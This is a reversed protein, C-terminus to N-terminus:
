LESEIYIFNLQPYRIQVKQLLEKAYPFLITVNSDLDEPHIIKKNYLTKNVKTRNEDIFYQIKFDLMYACFLATPSTGFIVVEKEQTTLISILNQIKQDLGKEKKELVEEEFKIIKKNSAIVTIERYIQKKPFYVYKFFSKLITYIAYKNFHTIHDITFIDFINEEINPLQLLLIGDKKLSKKVNELFSNMNIIHEFVHIACIMDFYDSYLEEENVIFLKKFNNIRFLQEEKDTKIDQAYLNWNYRKSFEKLFVGSGTGIDLLNGDKKIIAEANELVKISRSTNTKDDVVHKEEEGNSLYYPEYELYIREITDIMKKDIKKQVLSCNNCQLLIFDAEIIKNDSTVAKHFQYDLLTTFSSKNCYICQYRM